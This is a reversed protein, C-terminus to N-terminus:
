NIGDQKRGLKTFLLMSEIHKTQPFMDLIAAQVIEYGSNILKKSDRVLTAPNCSIYVVHSPSHEIIKDMIQLAGARAPDLLVKNISSDYWEIKTQEDDLNSVFFRVNGLLYPANLVANLQAKEVLETVGEVGTVRQCMEALPLSFNGMGCFLDLIHDDEQPALWDLAQQVMKINVDSNVQIFNLPSFTLKLANIYYYHETHGFLHILEKGHLYLSIQQQQAFVMLTAIDNESLPRVHRLVMITDSDAYILEVHGLSKKDSLSSLCTKLPSLLTELPEVLVPCTKIDIIQNSELKRFGVLLHDNDLILALRARRRYHYSDAALVQINEIAIQYDAEKYFLDSFAQAKIHHQMKSPIHQMECGGCVSYHMCAPTIRQDSKRLYKLVTAKAYQKKDETVKVDVDETPLANKVFITKGHHRAVGQGFADISDIHLTMKTPKSVTKKPASYFVVM